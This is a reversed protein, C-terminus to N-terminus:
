SATKGFILLFQFPGAAERAFLTLGAASATQIVLDPNVREDADPGPGGGGPVFDGHGHRREDIRTVSYFQRRGTSVFFKREGGFASRRCQREAGISRFRRFIGPGSRATRGTAVAAHLRAIFRRHELVLVAGPHHAIFM